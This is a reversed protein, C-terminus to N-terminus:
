LDGTLKDDARQQSIAEWYDQEARAEAEGIEEAAANEIATVVEPKLHDFIEIGRITVSTLEISPPVGPDDRTDPYGREVDLKCILEEGPVTTKDIFTYGTNLPRPM